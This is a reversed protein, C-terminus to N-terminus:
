KEPSCGNNTMMKVNTPLKYDAQSSFKRNNSNEKVFKFSGVLCNKGEEAVAFLM